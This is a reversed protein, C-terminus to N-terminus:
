QKPSNAISTRPPLKTKMDVKIDQVREYQFGVTKSLDAGRLDTETVFAQWFNTGRLNAARFITKVLFCAELSAAELNAGTLNANNLESESIQAERLDAGSLNAANLGSALFRAKRLSAGIFNANMVGTMYLDARSLDAREFKAWEFDANHIKSDNLNSFSFDPQKAVVGSLNAGALTAHRLNTWNLVADTLNAGSLNASALSAGQLNARELNAGVLETDELNLVRRNDFDTNRQGIVTLIAQLDSNIKPSTRITSGRYARNRVFATLVEMIPWYDEKSTRAIRELVYVGSLRIEVNENALQMIASKYQDTKQAEYTLRQTEAQNEQTDQHNAWGILVSLVVIGGGFIQALTKRAENERDFKEPQRNGCLRGVQLKPVYILLLSVQLVFM